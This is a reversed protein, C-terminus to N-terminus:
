EQWCTILSSLPSVISADTVYYMMRWVSYIIKLTHRPKHRWNYAGDKLLTHDSFLNSRRLQAMINMKVSSLLLLRHRTHGQCWRLIFSENVDNCFDQILQLVAAWRRPMKVNYSSNPLTSHSSGLVASFTSCFIFILIFRSMNIYITSWLARIAAWCSATLATMRVRSHIEESVTPLARKKRKVDLLEVLPKITMGQFWSLVLSLLFFDM